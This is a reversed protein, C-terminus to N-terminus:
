PRYIDKRHGIRLIHVTQTSEEIRTILRYDGVRMRSYSTDGSLQISYTNPHRQRREHLFTAIRTQIPSPLKSFEKDARKEFEFKWRM